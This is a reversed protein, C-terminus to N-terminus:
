HTRVLSRTALDVMASAHQGPPLQQAFRIARHIERAASELAIDLAGTSKVISAVEDLM